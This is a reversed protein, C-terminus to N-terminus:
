GTRNEGCNIILAANLQQWIAVSEKLYSEKAYLESTFNWLHSIGSEEVKKFSLLPENVIETKGLSNKDPKKSPKSTWIIQKEEILQIRSQILLVEVGLMLAFHFDKTHKCPLLTFSCGRPAAADGWIGWLAAGVKCQSLVRPWPKLAFGCGSITRPFCLFWSQCEKTWVGQFPGVPSLEEHLSKTRLQLPCRKDVTWNWRTNWHAITSNIGAFLLELKAPWISIDLGRLFEGKLMCM